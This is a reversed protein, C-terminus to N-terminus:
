NFSFIGNYKIFIHHMNPLFFINYYYVKLILASFTFINFFYTSIKLSFNNLIKGQSYPNREERKHFFCFSSFM